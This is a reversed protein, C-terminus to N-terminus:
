HCDAYNNGYQTDIGIEINLNLKKNVTKMAETLVEGVIDKRDKLCYALFEDHYQLLVPVGMPDLSKRCEQLWCDFVYCGSGQNLCSFRDKDAKLSYWFRSIPNYIWSTIVEKGKNEVTEPVKVYQVTSGAAVKKVANNRDWYAKHLAKAFPLPRRLAEAIKPPGAGYICSFNVTKSSARKADIEKFLRAQEEKPLSQMEISTM